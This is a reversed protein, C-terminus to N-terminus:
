NIKESRKIAILKEKSQKAFDDMIKTTDILSTTGDMRKAVKSNTEFLVKSTNFVM